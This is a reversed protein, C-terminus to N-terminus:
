NGIGDWGKRRSVRRPPQERSSFGERTSFASESIMLLLEHEPQVRSDCRGGISRLM